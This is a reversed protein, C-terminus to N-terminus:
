APYPQLYSRSVVGERKPRRTIPVNWNEWVLCDNEAENTVADGFSGSFYLRYVELSWGSFYQWFFIRTLKLNWRTTNLLSITDSRVNAWWIFLFLTTSQDMRHSLEIIPWPLRKRSPMANVLWNWILMRQHSHTVSGYTSWPEEMSNHDGNTKGVVAHVTSLPCIVHPVLLFNYGHLNTSGPVARAMQMNLSKTAEDVLQEPGPYIFHLVRWTLLTGTCSKVVLLFSLFIHVTCSLSPVGSESSWL